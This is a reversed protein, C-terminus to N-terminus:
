HHVGSRACKLGGYIDRHLIHHGIELAVSFCLRYERRPSM